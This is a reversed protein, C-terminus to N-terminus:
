PVRALGGYSPLRPEVPGEGPDPHWDTVRVVGPEVLDLGDFWRAIRERTRSTIPSTSARYM